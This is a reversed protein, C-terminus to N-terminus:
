KAQQAVAVADASFPSSLDFTLLGYRSNFEQESWMNKKNNIIKLAEEEMSKPVAFYFKNPIHREKYGNQSCKHYYHHKNKNFDVKLDYTSVKVEIEIMEKENAALVDSNFAGCESAVYRMGKKFRCWAMLTAKMMAANFDGTIM